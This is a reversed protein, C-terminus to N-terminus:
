GFVNHLKSKLLTRNHSGNSIFKERMWNAFYKSVIADTVMDIRRCVAIHSM